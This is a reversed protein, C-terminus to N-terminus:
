QGLQAQDELSLDYSGPTVRTAHSGSVRGSEEVAEKQFRELSHVVGHM